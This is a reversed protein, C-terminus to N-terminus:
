ETFPTCPMHVIVLRRKLALKTAEDLDPYWQDPHLNSTIWFNTAVLVRSSGKLEVNCPYRDFGDYYIRSISVAELNMSSLM